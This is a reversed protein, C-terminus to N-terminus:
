ASVSLCDWGRRAAAVRAAVGGRRMVAREAYHAYCTQHSAEAFKRYSAWGDRELVGDFDEGLVQLAQDYGRGDLIRYVTIGQGAFVWLWQKAGNIRWGTEDPAVVPSNRVGAVLAADTAQARRAVRAM